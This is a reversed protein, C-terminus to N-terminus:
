RRAQMWGLLARPTASSARQLALSLVLEALSMWFAIGKIRLAATEVLEDAWPAFVIPVLNREYNEAM